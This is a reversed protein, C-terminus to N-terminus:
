PNKQLRNTAAQRERRAITRKLSMGGQRRLQRIREGRAEGMAETMSSLVGGIAEVTVPDVRVTPATALAESM